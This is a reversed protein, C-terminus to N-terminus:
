KANPRGYIRTFFRSYNIQTKGLNLQDFKKYVFTISDLDHQLM